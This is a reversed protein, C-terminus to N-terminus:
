GCVGDATHPPPMKIEASVPTSYSPLAMWVHIGMTPGEDRPPATKGGEPPHANPVLWWPLSQPKQRPTMTPPAGPDVQAQHGRERM